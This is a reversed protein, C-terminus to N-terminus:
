EAKGTSKPTPVQSRMTEGHQLVASTRFMNECANITKMLQGFYEVRDNNGGDTLLDFEVTQFADKTKKSGFHKTLRSKMIAVNEETIKKLKKTEPDEKITTFFRLFDVKEYCEMIKQKNKLANTKNGLNQYLKSCFYASITFCNFAGSFDSCFTGKDPYSDEYKKYEVNFGEKIQMITTLSQLKRDKDDINDFGFEIITNGEIYKVGNEESSKQKRFFIKSNGQTTFNYMKDDLLIEGDSELQLGDAVNTQGIATITLGLTFLCTFILLVKM